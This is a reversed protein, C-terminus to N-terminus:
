NTQKVYKEITQLELLVAVINIFITIGTKDSCAFNAIVDSRINKLARHLNTIYSSMSEIFENRNKISIPIIVQKKSSIKTM